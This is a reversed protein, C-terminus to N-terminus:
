WYFTILARPQGLIVGVRSVTMGPGFFNTGRSYTARLDVSAGVSFSRSVFYAVGPEVFVGATWERADGAFWSYGAVLGAGSFPRLPDTTERYRRRGVRAQVTVQDGPNVNSGSAESWLGRFDLGLLRATRTDRFRLWSGSGNLNAELARTSNAPFAPEQAPLATGVVVLGLIISTRM